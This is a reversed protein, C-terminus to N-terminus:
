MFFLEVTLYALACCIAATILFSRFWKGKDIPVDGVLKGTQGNMAFIYPKGKWITNLMWVPLMVYEVHSIQERINQQEGILVGNVTGHLHSSITNRMRGAARGRDEEATVDYKEALFNSLYAYNFPVLKSLDFPEISDMTDDDFKKSGDAPIGTFAVSGAREVDYIDTKTYRYNGSRWSTSHHVQGRIHGQAEGSYLWFPIYVGTIKEINSERTFDNPVFTEQHMLNKFANIADEKTKSFPIVRSPRFEGELRSKLISTSGCYVCFTAATTEDAVMEAGCNKCRYVDLQPQPQQEYGQTYEPPMGPVDNTIYPPPTTQKSQKQTDTDQDSDKTMQMVQVADYESGCASCKWKRISADYPLPSGCGPCKLVTTDM